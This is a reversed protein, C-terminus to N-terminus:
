HASCEKAKEQVDILPQSHNEDPILYYKRFEDPYSVRKGTAVWYTVGNKSGKRIIEAPPRLRVNLGEVECEKIVDSSIVFINECMEIVAIDGSILEKALLYPILLGAIENDVIEFTRDDGTCVGFKGYAEKGESPKVIKYCRM